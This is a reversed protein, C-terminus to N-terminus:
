PKNIVEYEEGLERRIRELLRKGEQEFRELKEKSWPSPGSPNSWNMSTDHLESLQKIKKITAKSLPLRSPNIPGVDYTKYAEDNGSWLCSGARWEFFYRLKYKM